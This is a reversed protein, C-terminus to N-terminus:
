NINNIYSLDDPNCSKKNKFFQEKFEQLIGLHYHGKIGFDSELNSKWQSYIKKSSNLTFSNNVTESYISLPLFEKWVKQRLDEDVYALGFFTSTNYNTIEEQLESFDGDFIKDLNYYLNSDPSYINVNTLMRRYHLLDQEGKTCIKHFKEGITEKEKPRGNEWSLIKEFTKFSEWLLNETEAYQTDGICNIWRYKGTTSMDSKNVLEIKHIFINEQKNDELYIHINVKDKDVYIPIEADSEGLLECLEEQSPNAAIPRCKFFGTLLHSYDEM